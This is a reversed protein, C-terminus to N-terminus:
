ATGAKVKLGMIIFLTIFLLVASVLIVCSMRAKRQLESQELNEWIIDTPEPAEEYELEVGLSNLKTIDNGDEDYLQNYNHNITGDENYAFRWKEVRAKAEQTTFTIFACM